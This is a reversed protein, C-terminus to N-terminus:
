DYYCPSSYDYVFEILTALRVPSKQVEHELVIQSNSLNQNHIIFTAKNKCLIISQHNVPLTVGFVNNGYGIHNATEIQQWNEHTLQKTLRDITKKDYNPSYVQGAYVVQRNWIEFKAQKDNLLTHVNKIETDFLSSKQAIERDFEPSGKRPLTSLGIMWLVALVFSLAFKYDLKKKM